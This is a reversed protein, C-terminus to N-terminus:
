QDNIVKLIESTPLCMTNSIYPKRFTFYSVANVVCNICTTQKNLLEIIQEKNLMDTHSGSTRNEYFFVDIVYNFRDLKKEVTTDIQAGGVSVLEYQKNRIIDEEDIKQKNNFLCDLRIGTHYKQLNNILEVDSSFHLICGFEQNPIKEIGTFELNAIPINHNFTCGTLILILIYISYKM